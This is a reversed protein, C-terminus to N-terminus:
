EFIYRYNVTSYEGSDVRPAGILEKRLQEAREGADSGGFAANSRAYEDEAASITTPTAPNIARAWSVFTGIFKIAQGLQEM